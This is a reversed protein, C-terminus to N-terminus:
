KYKEAFYERTQQANLAIMNKLADIDPFKMEPRIFKHFELRVQRGYLDGSFDLIYSEVSVQHEEGTITPRVGVNTVASFEGEDLFVRTAYVGYRPVLVGDPFRMNITPADITRGLKYGYRVTDILTHPHGLFENAKEMEGDAILRRIHTSSVVVGDLTVAPIIDCGIGHEESYEKLLQATGEGKYGFCFDHGVVFHVTNLEETMTRVFDRWPMQMMERNFHIFLTKEIGFLRSIIDARGAASNILPVEKGFVLTDPHTDFSLVAPTANLQRARENVKNLLAAHGIHVGDFFGLAVVNKDISM